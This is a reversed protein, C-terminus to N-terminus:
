RESQPKPCSWFGEDPNPALFSAKCRRAQLKEMLKASHNEGVIIWGGRSQGVIENEDVPITKHPAAIVMDNDHGYTMESTYVPPREKQDKWFEAIVLQRQFGCGRYNKL